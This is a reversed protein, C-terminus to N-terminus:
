RLAMGDPIGRAIELEGNELLLQVGTVLDQKPVSWETGGPGPRQSERDGSTITVPTIECGLGARRLMDVVRAGVGTVDVAVGCGGRIRRREALGRGGGVVMPFPTGLRMREVGRVAMKHLEPTQYPRLKEWREVVAVASYDMRQGLDLGVWVMGAYEGAMTL